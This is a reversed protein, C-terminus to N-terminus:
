TVTFGELAATRSLFGLMDLLAAHDFRNHHKGDPQRHGPHNKAIEIAVLGDLNLLPQKQHGNQKGEHEPLKLDAIERGREENQNGKDKHATESHHRQLGTLQDFWGFIVSM